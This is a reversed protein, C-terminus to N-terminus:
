RKTCFRTEKKNTLFLTLTPPTTPLNSGEIEGWSPPTDFDVKSIHASHSCGYDGAEHEHHHDQQALLNLSFFLQVLLLLCCTPAISFSLKKM